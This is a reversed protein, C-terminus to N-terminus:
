QCKCLIYGVYLISLTTAYQQGHLHLDKEFRTVSRQLNLAYFIVLISMRLDLKRLLIREHDDRPHPLTCTPFNNITDVTHVATSNNLTTM